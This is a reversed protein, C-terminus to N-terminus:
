KDPEAKEGVSELIVKAEPLTLVGDQLAIDWAPQLTPNKDVAAKTRGYVTISVPRLKIWKWAPWSIFISMAMLSLIAGAM